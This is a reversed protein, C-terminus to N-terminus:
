CSAIFGARRIELVPDLKHKESRFANLIGSFERIDSEQCRQLQPCEGTARISQAIRARRVPLM